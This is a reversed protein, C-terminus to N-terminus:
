GRPLTFAEALLGAGGPAHDAAGVLKDAQEQATVAAAQPASEGTSSHEGIDAPIGYLMHFAAGAEEGRAGTHVLTEDVDLLVVVPKVTETPKTPKKAPPM